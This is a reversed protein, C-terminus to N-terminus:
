GSGPDASGPDTAPARPPFADWHARADPVADLAATLEPHEIGAEADDLLSWLGRAKADDIVAQGWCLAERVSEDYDLPERGSDKRWLM